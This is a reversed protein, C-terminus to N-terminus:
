KALAKAILSSPEYDPRVERLKQVTLRLIKKKQPRSGDNPIVGCNRAATALPVRSAKMGTSIELAAAHALALLRFTSIDEGTVVFGGSPMSEIAM